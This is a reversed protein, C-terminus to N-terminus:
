EFWRRYSHVDHFIGRIDICMMLFVGSVQRWDDLEAVLDLNGIIVFGCRARSVAVCLRNRTQLFRTLAKTRTLSLIIVDNEEGQFTDVTQVDVPVQM